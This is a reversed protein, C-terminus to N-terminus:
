PARDATVMKTMAGRSGRRGNEPSISASTGHECRATERFHQKPQSGAIKSRWLLHVCHGLTIGTDVVVPGGAHQHSMAKMHGIYEARRWHPPSGRPCVVLEGFRAVVQAQRPLGCRICINADRCIENKTVGGRSRTNQRPQQRLTRLLNLSETHQSM